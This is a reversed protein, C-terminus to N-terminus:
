SKLLSKVVLTLEEDSMQYYCIEDIGNEIMKDVISRAQRTQQRNTM